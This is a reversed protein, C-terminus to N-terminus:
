LETKTLMNESRGPFVYDFELVVGDGLPGGILLDTRVFAQVGNRGYTHRVAEAFLPSADMRADIEADGPKARNFVFQVRGALEPTRAVWDQAALIRAELIELSQLLFGIHFGAEPDSQESARVKAVAPHEDGGGIHLAERIADYLWAHSRRLPSLYLIGDGNNTADPDVLFHYFRSGDPLPIEERVAFGLHQLLRAALPGDEARPYHLAAHGLTAVPGTM